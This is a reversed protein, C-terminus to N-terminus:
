QKLELSEGNKTVEISKQIQDVLLDVKVKKLSSFAKQPNFTVTSGAVANECIVSFEAEIDAHNKKQLVEFIDKKIECKLEPDFSVIDSIGSELKALGKEKRAKDKKSTAEQEFGYIVQAPAHVEIKGKKGDFAISLQAEGHVHAGHETHALAMVSFLILKLM